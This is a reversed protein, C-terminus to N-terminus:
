RKLFMEDLNLLVNAVVTMSAADAPSINEPLPGLPDTAMRVAAERDAAFHAATDEYLAILTMLEDPDPERQLCLQHGYILQRRLVSDSDSAKLDGESKESQIMRRALSQAAEVYVPDNLTVLSQLPTNTQSRRITCVDRGPADFTAMSPYPSSRRWTTYIARRYRDEGESTQWDTSSGFAARLGLNPQPPKVPVGYMRSSLLGSVALAQDRIAEASLRVRPGRSLWRNDADRSLRESDAKSDQRYTSSTVILRLIERTNWGNRIVETALWDLLEPHTPLEGQSGFEESTVVIGRGFVSEWYRNVLVRPTLPNEPSVLWDALTLRNVSTTEPLVHFASPFGETVEPGHDLYNGRYQLKTTRRGTTLERMVPVTSIPKIETLAKQSDALQRRQEVLEPAARSRFYQSLSSQQDSTRQEPAIELAKAVLAPLRSRAITAEDTAIQVSFSGLLHQKGSYKQDVTIRLVGTTSLSIPSAPVIVIGHSETLSGGVAWGRKGDPAEDLVSEAPFGDQSYDAFASVLDLQQSVPGASPATDLISARIGTIVFNGGSYGSGGGPFEKRPLTRIQIGALTKGIHHLPIDIQYSDQDSVTPILVSGDADVTVLGGSERSVTPRVPSWPQSARLGEEWRAQSQKLIETPTDIVKQLDAITKQLSTRQAKQEDTFVEMLPSEDNRDADATNNLIAFMRFYEEQTIPDYKHTHCQACAMTTGMWVAMTTNVRDVVAVNRFEEDNTGGESNTMTNRHFATAIMQDDGSGPLLDGALQERTFQDFPMGNNISRIVWDRWVWITRGPDDAYGASDAYRALDLWQRAWHEGFSSRHLLDEVYLDYAKPDKSNVFAEVDEPTPPLGTLDLTVRRALTARDADPSPRLGNRLMEKLVFNDIANRPWSSLDPPVEPIVPRTPKVYSWHAAYRAGQQIWLELLRADTESVPKGFHAPPMRAEADSSRVRALLESDEPHGPVIARQGSELVATARNQTDLRLGAEIKQEDPGHCAFCHNSLIPRIQKAFDVQEAPAGAEAAVSPAIGSLIILAILSMTRCYWNMLM